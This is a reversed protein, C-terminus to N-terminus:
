ENHVNYRRPTFPRRYNHAKPEAKMRELSKQWVQKKLSRTRGVHSIMAKKRGQCNAGEGRRGSVLQKCTGEQGLKGRQCFFGSILPRLMRADPLHEHTRPLERLLNDLEKLPARLLRVLSSLPREAGVGGGEM